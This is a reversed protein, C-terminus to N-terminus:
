GKQAEKRADEKMKENATILFNVRRNQARGADTENSAVPASEGYGKTKIRGSSVGKGRLYNAVSSARRESLKMNYDDTGKSDTHGQVEIDTDPYEKLIAALKDLNGSASANLDSRDFGFLIKENFEVNIGEGVREVKAGPVKNEIEKAQKDMKHGIVAGTVGGVTAGIIAGLATNGAAKGIVAGVAGGGATGIIAGKQTKNMSKCGGLIIAVAAISTLTKQISRM